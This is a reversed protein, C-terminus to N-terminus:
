GPEAELQVKEVTSSESVATRRTPLAHIIGTMEVQSPRNGSSFSLGSAPSLKKKGGKGNDTIKSFTVQHKGDGTVYWEPGSRM